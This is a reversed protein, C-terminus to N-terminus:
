VKKSASSACVIGLLEECILTDWGRVRSRNGGVFLTVSMEFLSAMEIETTAPNITPVIAANMEIKAVPSSSGSIKNERFIPKIVPEVADIRIRVKAIYLIM